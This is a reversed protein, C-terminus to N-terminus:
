AVEGLRHDRGALTTMVAAGVMALATVTWAAGFGPGSVLAGSVIPGVASGGFGGIMMFSAATAAARPNPRVLGYALLGNWGWGFGLGVVLGATVALFSGGVALLGIGGAGIVILAPIMLFVRVPGIRDAWWGAVIRMAIAGVSAVALAYGISGASHGSDVGSEVAFTAVTQVAWLGLFMAGSGLLVPKRHIAERMGPLSTWRENGLSTAVALSIGIGVAGAGGFAWRWGVTEGVLPVAIGALLISAPVASMNLGFAVGQREPPIRTVLAVQVSPIALAAGGAAVAQGVALHWWQHALLAPGLLAVGALLFALVLGLRYGIREVVRGAPFAALATLGSFISVLGGLAVNSFSVDGRIDVALTGVMFVPLSVLVAAATPAALASWELRPSEPGGDEKEDHRRRPLDM